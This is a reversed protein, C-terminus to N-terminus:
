EAEKAMEDTIKTIVDTSVFNVAQRIASFFAKEDSSGHAKIVPKSIGLIVAGGIEKYDMRKKLDKIGDMVFLAGIKSIISKKFMNKIEDAFMKGAGEYTKLILNGTFGDCVLVDCEGMPVGRGEVNGVFNIKKNAKLVKHTEVYLDTGKTEEAGNNALGVRPNEIGLVNKMYVSGMVAFQELMEPKCEINAGSDAIMLMGNKVPMVPAMAARRVGKICRVFLTAGVLLAGSNGASVLADGEGNKLLNLCVALSSNPKKRISIPEDEMTIVDEADYIGIGNASLNNEALVRDIETKKGVLIIETGLEKVARVASTVMVDPSHDAGMVDVIIKM